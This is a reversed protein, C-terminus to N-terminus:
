LFIYITIHLNVMQYKILHNMYQCFILSIIKNIAFRILYSVIFKIVIKIIAKIM